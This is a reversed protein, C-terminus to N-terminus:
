NFPYWRVSLRVSNRGQDSVNIISEHQLKLDIVIARWKMDYGFSIIGSPNRVNNIDTSSFGYVRTSGDSYNYPSLKLYFTDPDPRKNEYAALGGEFYLGQANAPISILFGILGLISLKMKKNGQPQTLLSNRNM